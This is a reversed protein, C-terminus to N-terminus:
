FPHVNEALVIMAVGGVAVISIRKGQSSLIEGLARLARLMVSGDIQKDPCMATDIITM